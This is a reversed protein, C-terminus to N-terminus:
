PIKYILISDGARGVPEVSQRVGELYKRVPGPTYLGQLLTMSVALYEGSRPYSPGGAPSYDLFRYVKSYRIGYAAPDATGFYALHIEPVRERDMWRKLRPLDQGWDLNSDGLFREGGGSVGAFLNFYSIYRPFAWLSSAAHALLLAALLTGRKSLPFGDRLLSGAFVFLFPYLPVLHRHGINLGLGIAVALYCTAPVGLFCADLATGRLRHVSSLIAWGVLVLFAPTSKLLFAEPFYLWDGADTIRGNLFAPRRSRSLMSGLGDLYAAPVLKLARARAITRDMLGAGTDGEPGASAAFGPATSAAYRFGYGAWVCGLSVAGAGLLCASGLALRRRLSLDAGPHVVWILLLIPLLLLLLLTSFKVLLALGLAGGLALAGGWGPKRCFRWFCWVPLIFGLAAPIDTTVLRAHALVTPSLAALFLSLLGGGRGWLDRSWAYVVLILAMGFALMMFRAPLLRRRPDLREPRNVPGNLFEYGLRWQDASAWADSGTDIKGSGSARLPLAAWMKALPPHEPNLRFDGHDLYSYGAALHATEDFTASDGSLSFAAPIVFAAIALPLGWRDLIAGARDLV